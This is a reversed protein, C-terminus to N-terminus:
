IEEQMAWLLPMKDGHYSISGLCSDCSPADGIGDMFYVGLIMHSALLGHRRTSDNVLCM